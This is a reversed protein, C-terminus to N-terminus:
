KCQIIWEEINNRLVNLPISGNELVATHFAIINFKDGLKEEAMKRLSKIEEGGYNYAIFQAPWVASRYYMGLGVKRDLGIESCYEIVQEKTWGFLHIGVDIVMFRGIDSRREITAANSSYLGMEEALQEAYIAWGESYSDFSIIKSISHMKNLGREIESQLHHGPYAEHFIMRECDAKTSELQYDNNIRFYAPRDNTAPDMEGAGNEYNEYEDILIDENPVDAFYLQCKEKAKFLVSDVDNMLEKKNQFLNVSDNLTHKIIESFQNTGYLESGLTEIAAINESVLKQGLEYIETGTVNPGIYLRLYANYCEEGNPLELLSVNTRAENLYTNKLFDQYLRLAPLVEQDILEKWDQIFTKDGNKLVPKVFPSDKLKYDLIRNIQVIVARVIEKPMTYGELIGVKLNMIETQVYDPFTRWRKLAAQRQLRTELPQQEALRLLRIHFGDKYSVDWLYTKCIRLEGARALQEKLISYTIVDTKEEIRKMNVSLLENYLSDEFLEKEKIDELKNSNFCFKQEPFLDHIVAYEPHTNIYHAYYSDALQIVKEDETNDM